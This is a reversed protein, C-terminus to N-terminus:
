NPFLMFRERVDAKLSEQNITDMTADYIYHASRYLEMSQNIEGMLYYCEAKIHLFRPLAYYYGQKICSQQGFESVELAEEWRKESALCLAYNYAILYLYIHNPTRKRILKLLQGYIDIAKRCQGCLTYRLAIKSIISVEATSYLCNSLENVDFQPSTLRIAEMLVELQKQLPYSELSAKVGLIFQQNINDDAKTCRELEYLKEMGNRRAQQREEGCTREFQSCYALVDKRLRILQTEERTLQAYYRDDPLGLRQLIAAVCDRSPTQQGSEFRSLTMSTCLGKCVQDQSVGLLKRQERVVEGLYKVKM